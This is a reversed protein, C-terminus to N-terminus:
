GDGDLRNLRAEMGKIVKLHDAGGVFLQEFIKKLPPSAVKLLRGTDYISLKEEIERSAKIAEKTCMDTETAERSICVLRDYIEEMISIDYTIKGFAQPAKKLIQLEGEVFSAHDAEETALMHWAERLVPDDGFRDKFTLYVDAAANEIKIALTLIKEETTM